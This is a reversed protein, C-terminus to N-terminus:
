YKWGLLTSGQPDPDDCVHGSFAGADGDGPSAWDVSGSLSSSTAGSIGWHGQILM